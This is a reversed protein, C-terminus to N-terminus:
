GRERCLESGRRAILDYLDECPSLPLAYTEGGAARQAAASSPTSKPGTKDFSHEAVEHSHGKM